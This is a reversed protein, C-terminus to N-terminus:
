CSRDAPAPWDRDIVAASGSRAAAELRCNRLSRGGGRRRNRRERVTRRASGVIARTYAMVGQQWRRPRAAGDRRMRRCAQPPRAFNGHCGRCGEPRDSAIVAAAAPDALSPFDVGPFKAEARRVQPRAALPRRGGVPCFHPKLRRLLPRSSSEFRQLPTMVFRNRKASFLPTGIM